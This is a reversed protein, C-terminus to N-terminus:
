FPPLDMLPDKIRFLHFTQQQVEMCVTVKVMVARVTSVPVAEGRAMKSVRLFLFMKVYLLFIFYFFFCLFVLVFGISNTSMKNRGKGHAHSWFPNGHDSWSAQRHMKIAVGVCEGGGGGNGDDNWLHDCTPTPPPLVVFL